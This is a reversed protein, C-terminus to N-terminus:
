DPLQEGVLAVLAARVAGEDFPWDLEIRGQGAAAEVILVPLREGYRDCLEVDNAIDQVVLAGGGLAPMDLLADLAVECLTCHATSLLKLTIAM